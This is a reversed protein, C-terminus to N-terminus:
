TQNTTVKQFGRSAGVDQSARMATEEAIIGELKQKLIGELKRSQDITLDEIKEAAFLAQLTDDFHPWMNEINWMPQGNADREHKKVSMKIIWYDEWLKKNANIGYATIKRVPQEQKKAPAPPTQRQTQQQRPQVKENTKNKDQRELEHDQDEIDVSGQPDVISSEFPAVFTKYLAERYAVSQCKTVCKDGYDIAEGEAKTEVHSGDQAYFAFTYLRIM